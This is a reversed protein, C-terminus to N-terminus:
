GLSLQDLWTQAMATWATASPRRRRWLLPAPAADALRGGVVTWVDPGFGRIVYRAGGIRAAGLYHRLAERRHGARRAVLALYRTFAVRDVRGGYRRDIVALEASLRGTNRSANGTHVRYAVLPKAVCAPSGDLALRIWLDWDAVIGLREDFGGLRRMTDTRVLVGSCGGPILNRREIERAVVEPPPPPAGGIVTLDRTVNVSGVYAWSRASSDAAAVQEQLKSPAWLDDDDLFAIWPATAEAVGRNRAASVGRSREHRIVRVRSEALHRIMEEAGDTSGDDVVVVEVRVDRQDLATRLAQALLDRRDRTPIVVTVDVNAEDGSSSRGTRPAKM